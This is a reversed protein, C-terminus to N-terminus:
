EKPLAQELTRWALVACKVRAPMKAISQLVTAEELVALIEPDTEEEKIMQLFLQLLERAEEVRKGRLVDAMISASAKSIACGQGMYSIDRIVGDEIIAQVTLDDGCNPNHGHESVTADALERRNRPSNNHELILETYLQRLDDM